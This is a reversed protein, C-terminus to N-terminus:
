IKTVKKRRKLKGRVIISIWQHISEEGHISGNEEDETRNKAIEAASYVM